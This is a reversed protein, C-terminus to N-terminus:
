AKLQCKQKRQTIKEFSVEVPTKGRKDKNKNDKRFPTLRYVIQFSKFFLEASQISEFGGCNKIQRAFRKIVRETCNNTRPVDEYELPYMMNRFHKQLYLFLKEAEPYDNRLEMVSFYRKRATKPSKCRFINKMKIYLKNAPENTERFKLSYIDKFHKKLNMQFHILCHIHKVRKGFVIPIVRNYGELLDTVIFDPNYGRKKLEMLFIKITLDSRSEFVRLYLLDGSAADVAMFLYSWENETGKCKIWKEDIGITRIEKNIGLELSIEEEFAGLEHITRCIKSPSKGLFDGATRM